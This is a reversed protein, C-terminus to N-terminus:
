SERGGTRVDRQRHGSCAVPSRHSRTYNCTPSGTTTDCVSVQSAPTSQPARVLSKLGNGTTSRALPRTTCARGASVRSHQGAQIYRVKTVQGQAHHVSPIGATHILNTPTSVRAAQTRSPVSCATLFNRALQRRFHACVLAFRESDRLKTTMVETM